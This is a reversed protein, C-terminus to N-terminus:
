DVEEMKEEAKAKTKSTKEVKANDVKVAEVVPQTRKEAKIHSEFRKSWSAMMERKISTKLKGFSEIAKRMRASAAKNDDDRYKPWEEEMVQKLDEWDRFDKTPSEPTFLKAVLGKHLTGYTSAIQAAVAEGARYVTLIKHSGESSFKYTFGMNQIFAYTDQAEKDFSYIMSDLPYTKHFMESVAEEVLGKKTPSALQAVLVNEKDRVDLFHKNGDKYYNLKYGLDILARFGKFSSEDGELEQPISTLQSLAKAAERAGTKTPSLLDYGEADVKYYLTENPNVTKM